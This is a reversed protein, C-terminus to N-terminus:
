RTAPVKRRESPTRRDETLREKIWKIDNRMEAIEIQAKQLAKIEDQQGSNDLQGAMVGGVATVLSAIITVVWKAPINTKGIRAVVDRQKSARSKKSNM